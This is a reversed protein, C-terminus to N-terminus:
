KLTKCQALIQGIEEKLIEGIEEFNEKEQCKILKNLSKLAKDLIDNKNEFNVTDIYSLVSNLGELITELLINARTLDYLKFANAAPIIKEEIEKITELFMKNTRSKFKEIDELFVIINHYKSPNIEKLKEEDFDTVVWGDLSVKEIVANGNQQQIIENLLSELSRHRKKTEPKVQIKM